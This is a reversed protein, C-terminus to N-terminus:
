PETSWTDIPRSRCEIWQQTSGMYFRGESSSQHTVLQAYQQCNALSNFILPSLSGMKSCTGTSELCLFPAYIKSRDDPPPETTDTALAQNRATFWANALRTTPLQEIQTDTIGNQYYSERSGHQYKAKCAEILAARLIKGMIAPPLGSQAGSQDFAKQMAEYNDLTDGFPPATCVVSKGTAFLPLFLVVALAARM